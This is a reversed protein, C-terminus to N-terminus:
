MSADKSLWRSEYSHWMAVDGLWTDMCIVAVNSKGAARLARVWAAASNGVFSGLEVMYSDVEDVLVQLASLLTSECHAPACAQICTPRLRDIWCCVRVQALLKHKEVSSHTYWDSFRMGPPAVFNVFPDRIHLLQLAIEDYSSAVM